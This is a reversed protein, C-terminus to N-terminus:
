SLHTASKKSTPRTLPRESAQDSPLAVLPEPSCILPLHLAFGKQGGILITLGRLAEDPDTTPRGQADLAWGM